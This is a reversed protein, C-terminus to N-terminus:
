QPRRARTGRVDLTAGEKALGWGWALLCAIVIPFGIISRLTLERGWSVVRSYISIVRGIVALPALATYRLLFGFKMPSRRALRAGFRGISVQHSLVESLRTRNFHWVKASPVFRFRDQRRAAVSILTDEGGDLDEVFPGFTQWLGSPILMNATAGHWATAPRRKPHLDIFECLYEATGVINTPTGNDISGAVIKTGHDSGEVLNGLWDSAVVVDADTFAYLDGRAERVGENRAVAAPVREPHWIMKVVPDDPVSPRDRESDGSAVVVVEFSGPYDQNLVSRVCRDIIAADRYAPVIVSVDPKSVPESM